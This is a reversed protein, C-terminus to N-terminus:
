AYKPGGQGLLCLTQNSVLGSGVGPSKALARAGIACPSYGNATRRRTPSCAKASECHPLIRSQDVHCLCEADCPQQHLQNACNRSETIPDVSKLDGSAVFPLHAWSAGSVIGSVTNRAIGFQAAIDKHRLGSAALARIELVQAANLKQRGFVNYRGKCISDLVNDRQTGLFLHDVNVCRPNDCRHLVSLGAPIPGNALEWALRHARIVPLGEHKRNIQVHGSRSSVCGQVEWCGSPQKVTRAALREAPTHARHRGGRLGVRPSRRQPQRGSVGSASISSNHKSAGM